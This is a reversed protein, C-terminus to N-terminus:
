NKSNEEARATERTKEKESKERKRKRLVFKL